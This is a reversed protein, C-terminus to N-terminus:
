LFLGSPDILGEKVDKRIKRSVARKLRVRAVRKESRIKHCEEYAKKGNILIINESVWPHGNKCRQKLRAARQINERQTVAELHNPNVCSKNQCCHDIVLGRPIPGKFCLYLLRHASFESGNLALKGYGVPHCTGIWLWCGSNPEPIIKDEIFAPLGLWSM